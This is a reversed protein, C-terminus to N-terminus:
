GVGAVERRSLSARKQGRRSRSDALSLLSAAYGSSTGYRRAASHDAMFEQDILLQSRLWWVHPLFFWVSQALSAVTGFWPDSQEAHAIEHLLSLKLLEESSSPHDYSSPILITTRVMGVLVPRQVKASVRLTPRSRRTTEGPELAEYIARAAASPEESHRCLWHVGWYGLLLWAAGTAAM